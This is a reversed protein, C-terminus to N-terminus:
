KARDDGCQTFEPGCAGKGCRDQATTEAQLTTHTLEFRRALLDKLADLAPPWRRMDTIRVHASLACEKSGLSWVHLDHVSEVEPVAAMARAVEDLDVHPPVGEMLVPLVERLLRISSIFILLGIFIALIPDIPTWGTGYIVAGAALAAASGLLDGFVHLLAGRVNLNEQGGRLVWVALLNILLGIFGVIMVTLGAVPQPQLLREIAAVCIGAVIAIMLLVNVFAGIIEARKLGYSHRASPPKQSLWAAVAGIGLAASDTLMHGADGLLALSGSVWGATAEVLAFATTLILAALLRRQSGNNRDAAGAHQHAHGHGHSHAM